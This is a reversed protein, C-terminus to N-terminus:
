SENRLPEILKHAQEIYYDYNIPMRIQKLDNCPAVKWGVNVGIRRYVDPKKALPPMIKILSVGHDGTVYYRTINELPQDEGDSDVGVLKSSRPVKARFMFDMMDTHTRIFHDPDEGRVLAAEVAKKVVLGGHDKHWPLEGQDDRNHAYAGKRKLGGGKYEAIFNNVDRIFMRSFEVRELELLTFNEWWDCVANVWPELTRPIKVTLGDTNAQIMTLKSHVMLKEALLCLLLQGNITIAMTYAPDYFPSYVSNSDGYVGNLALKLMANEPTGKKHSKRQNYLDLYIDCFQESLHEPYLGNKIALNPYYSAVDIDLIMYEDDSEVTQSEVSGHIGGTGFDFTFGNIQCNLNRMEFKYGSLELDPLHELVLPLPIGVGRNALSTMKKRIKDNEVDIVSQNSIGFVKVTDIVSQDSIGFVKVTSHDATMATFQDCNIKTFVGKTETIVQSKLYNLVNRFGQQEFEIYDFIVDNLHISPRITQRPQKRNNHDRYYCAGPLAKELKQIFYNKGIKTDNYNTFNQDYKVSLEDRMRLADVSHHYFKKTEKVDHKNYHRLIPLDERAIETNPAFPLDCINESRMNFELVKLSTRRANNDFHHIKYLDVQQVIHDSEWILHEFPNGGTIIASAKQWIEFCDIDYGCTMILHLIPYDFGVNNFGAYRTKIAACENVFERLQYLDNREESIEFFWEQDSNADEFAITFVNPYTEEDYIIDTTM